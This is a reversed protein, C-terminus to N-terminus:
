RQLELEFMCFTAIKHSIFLNNRYCCLSFGNLNEIEIVEIDLTPPLIAPTEM